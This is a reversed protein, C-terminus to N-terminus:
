RHTVSIKGSKGKESDYYEEWNWRDKPIETICNVGEALNKWFEELNNSDDGDPDGDPRTLGRQVEAGLVRGNPLGNISQRFVIALGDLQPQQRALRQRFGGADHM